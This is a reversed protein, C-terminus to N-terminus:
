HGEWYTLQRTVFNFSSAVECSFPEAGKQAHAAALVECACGLAALAGRSCHAAASFDSPVFTHTSVRVYSVCARVCAYVRVCVRLCACSCEFAQKRVFMDSCLRGRRRVTSGRLCFGSQGCHGAGATHYECRVNRSKRHPPASCM